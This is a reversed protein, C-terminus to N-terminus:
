ATSVGSQVCSGEPVTVLANIGNNAASTAFWTSLSNRYSVNDPNAACSCSPVAMTVAFNGAATPCVYAEAPDYQNVSCVLAGALPSTPCYAPKVAKQCVTPQANIGDVINESGTYIDVDVGAALLM